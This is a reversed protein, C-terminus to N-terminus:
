RMAQGLGVNTTSKGRWAPTPTGRDREIYKASPSPEEAQELRGTQNQCHITGYHELDTDPDLGM